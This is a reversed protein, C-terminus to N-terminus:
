DKFRVLFHKLDVDLEPWSNVNVIAQAALRHIPNLSCYLYYVAHTVAMKALKINM